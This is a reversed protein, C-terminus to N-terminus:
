DGSDRAIRLVLGRWAGEGAVGTGYLLSEHSRYFHSRYFCDEEVVAHDEGRCGVGGGPGADAGDGAEIFVEDVAFVPGVTVGVVPAVEGGLGVPVFGGGSGSDDERGGLEGIEDGGVGVEPGGEIEGHEVPGLVQLAGADGGANEGIHGVGHLGAEAGAVVPDFGEVVVGPRVGEVEGFGLGGDVEVGCFAEVGWGFVDEKDVVASFVDFGSEGDAHLGDQVRRMVGELLLHVVAAEIM